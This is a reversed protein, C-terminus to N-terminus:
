TTLTLNTSFWIVPQVEELCNGVISAPLEQGVVELPGTSSTYRGTLPSVAGFGANIICGSFPGETFDIEIGDRPVTMAGVRQRNPLTMLTFTWDGHTTLSRVEISTIEFLEACGEFVPPTIAVTVSGNANPNDPSGPIVGSARVFSCVIWSVPEGVGNEIEIFVESMASNRLTFSGTPSVSTATASMPLSLAATCLVACVITVTIPIRM